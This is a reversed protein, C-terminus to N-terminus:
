WDCKPCIPAAGYRVVTVAPRVWASIQGSSSVSADALLRLLGLVNACALRSVYLKLLQCRRKRRRRVLGVSAYVGLALVLLLGSLATLASFVMRSVCVRRDVVAEQGARELHSRKDAQYAASLCYDSPPTHEDSVCIDTHVHMKDVSRKVVANNELDFLLSNVPATILDPCFPPTPIDDCNSVGNEDAIDSCIVFSCRISLLANDPVKFAHWHVIALDHYTDYHPHGLINIDTSCGNEDIVLYEQGSLKDRVTCNRVHFGYADSPPNLSWEIRLQQGITADEVAEKASPGYGHHEEPEPVIRMLCDPVAAKQEVKTPILKLEELAEEIRRPINETEYRIRQNVCRTLFSQITSSGDENQYYVIVEVSYGSEEPGAGPNLRGCEKYPLTFSLEADGGDFRKHCLPNDKRDRAFVEGVFPFFTKANFVIGSEECIVHPKGRIRNPPVSPTTRGQTTTRPVETTVIAETPPAGSSVSPQGSDTTIPPNEFPTASTSSDTANRPPGSSLPSTATSETNPESPTSIPATQTVVTPPVSTPRDSNPTTTQINEQTLPPSSSPASPTSQEPAPPTTETSTQSPSTTESQSEEPPATVGPKTSGSSPTSESQPFTELTVPSGTETTASSPSPVTTLSVDPTSQPTTPTVSGESTIPPTPTEESGPPSSSTAPPSSKTVESPTPSQSSTIQPTNNTVSATSPTENPSPSSSEPINPTESPNPPVESVTSSEPVKPSATSSQQAVTSPSEQPTEYANPVTPQTTGSTASPTSGPPSQDPFAYRTAEGDDPSPTTRDSSIKDPPAYRTSEGDDPSPTTRDSSIKDPPAYRTSEGDDPSPTTRDSSIKDPPAYRTSEGDDPSATTRDSSIKDPPAYRTSEGDDPSATTRDSSVQDPFAYRTSEGDDPSATTRDSSVKDPPAYRTSEGDDPSATTRDSSVQDPFAYRTSEGDDPASTTRDSSVKDPFAYRSQEEDIDTPITKATSIKDPFAYRSEESNDPVTTEPPPRTEEPFAYRSRADEEPPPNSSVAPSSGTTVSETDPYAPPPVYAPESASVNPRRPPSDPPKSASDRYPNDGDAVQYPPLPAPYAIKALTATRSAQLRFPLPRGSSSRGNNSGAPATRRPFPLLPGLSYGKAADQRNRAQKMHDPLVISGGRERSSGRNVDASQAAILGGHLALVHGNNSLAALAWEATEPRSLCNAPRVAKPATANRGVAATIPSGKWVGTLPSHTRALKGFAFCHKCLTEAPRIKCKFSPLFIAIPEPVHVAGNAGNRGGACAVRRCQADDRRHKKRLMWVTLRTTEASPGAVGACRDRAIHEAM